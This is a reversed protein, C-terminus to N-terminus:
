VVSIRCMYEAPRKNMAQEVVLAAAEISSLRQRFPMKAVWFPETPSPIIVGPLGACKM